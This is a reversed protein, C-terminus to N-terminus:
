SGAGYRKEDQLVHYGLEDLLLEWKRRLELWWEGKKTKLISQEQHKMYLQFWVTNTKTVSMNWKGCHGWLESINHCIDFNGGKLPLFMGNCRYVLKSILWGGISWHVSPNSGHKQLQSFHQYSYPYAVVQELYQKLNNQVHVWFHSKQVVCCKKNQFLTKQPFFFGRISNEM